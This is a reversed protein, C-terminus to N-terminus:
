PLVTVKKQMTSQSFIGEQILGQSMDETKLSRMSMIWAMLSLCLVAMLILPVVWNLSMDM